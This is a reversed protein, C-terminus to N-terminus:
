LPKAFRRRRGSPWRVASPLYVHSRRRTEPEMSARMMGRRWQTIGAGEATLIAISHHPIMAEMYDTGTVTVQSRVLWTTLGLALTAGAFIATNATRNRYMNLMYGLMVIAKVAGRLLAMWARTESFFVHDSIYTHIHMLGFMVLTSTAIMAALCM